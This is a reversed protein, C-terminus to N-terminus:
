PTVEDLFAGIWDEWLSPVSIAWHGNGEGRVKVVHLQSQAGAAQMAALNQKSHPISYFPDDEGYISMVPGKFAGSRAFLTPNISDEGWGESVWGGSFNVVGVVEDPRAGAQMIAVVGGRSLGGLLLPGDAVDARKRLAVLAAEADILARDAGPIAFEAKPSYGASRDVGFGEDYIGDSGGRGRRQVFAVLWGRATLMDAFWDNSWVQNHVAPDRGDGTSGHHILALPFPGDGKPRYIVTNLRVPVGNEQLTTEIMEARGISWWDAQPAAKMAAFDRRELVTFGFDDGFVGRLHGSTSLEYRAKLDDGLLTLTEGEIMAKRRFWQGTAAGRNGIAYIVDAVGDAHLTEVVLIHNLQGGWAGTWVGSFPTDAHQLPTTNAPLPVDGFPMADQAQASTILVFIAFLATYIRNIM